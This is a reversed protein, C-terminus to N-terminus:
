ASKEVKKRSQVRLICTIAPTNVRKSTRTLHRMATKWSQYVAMDEWDGEPYYHGWLEKMPRRQLAYEYKNNM